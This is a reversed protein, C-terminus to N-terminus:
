KLVKCKENRNKLLFLLKDAAATVDIREGNIVANSFVEYQDAVQKDLDSIGEHSMPDSYRIAEYVKQTLEKLDDTKVMEALAQAQGSLKYIFRTQVAVKEDLDSVIRVAMAAKVISVINAAMLVASVLICVWYPIVSILMFLGGVVFAIVLGRYSIKFYSINYFIKKADKGAFAIIASILNVAFYLMIFGYGWWFSPTYKEMGDWGVSVFAIVNFLAVLVTWFAAYFKITKKM